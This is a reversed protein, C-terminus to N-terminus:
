HGNKPAETRREWVTVTKYVAGNAATNQATNTLTRLDRSYVNRSVAIIEGNLKWVTQFSREALKRRSVTLGTEGGSVPCDVCSPSYEYHLTIKSGDPRVREYFMKIRDPGDQTAIITGAVYVVKPDTSRFNKADLTFTGIVPDDQAYCSTAILCCLVHALYTCRM